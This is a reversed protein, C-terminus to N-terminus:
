FGKKSLRIIQNNLVKVTIEEKLNRINAWIWTGNGLYEGEFGIISQVEAISMGIKDKFGFTQEQKRRYYENKVQEYSSRDLYGYKRWFLHECAIGDYDPDLTSASDPHKLYYDQAEDQYEFESCLKFDSNYSNYTAEEVEVTKIRPQKRSPQVSSFEHCKGDIIMFNDYPCSQANSAKAIPFCNLCLGSLLLLSIKAFPQM